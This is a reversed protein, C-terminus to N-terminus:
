GDSRLRGNQALHPWDAFASSAVVGAMTRASEIGPPRPSITADARSHAPSAFPRVATLIMVVRSSYAAIMANPLIGFKRWRVAQTKLVPVDYLELRAAIAAWWM